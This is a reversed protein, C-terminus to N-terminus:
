LGGWRDIPWIIVFANGVVGAEEVEGFIRSDQSANRNDGLVFIHGQSITEPGFDVMDASPHLYPEDVAEGNVLLVGDTVEVTDGAIAIVRKIFESRPTSLGVSERLNRLVSEVVSETSPVGNPDDFVVVDGRQIDGLRYALKSVLVRDNVHLTDEMSSSPIWFAQFLFTKIFVAILLASVVLIPFELWAPRGRRKGPTAPTTTEDAVPREPPPPRSPMELTDDVPAARVM